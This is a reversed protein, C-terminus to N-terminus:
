IYDLDCSISCCDACDLVDYYILHCGESLAQLAEGTGLPISTQKLNFKAKDDKKSLKKSLAEFIKVDEKRAMTREALERARLAEVSKIYNLVADPSAVPDVAAPLAVSAARAQDELQALKRKLVANEEV